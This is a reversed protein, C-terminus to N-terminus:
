SMITSAGAMAKKVASPNARPKAGHSFVASAASQIAGSTARLIVCAANTGKPTRAISAINIRKNRRVVCSEMEGSAKELEVIVITSSALSVRVAMVDGRELRLACDLM